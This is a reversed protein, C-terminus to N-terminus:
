FVKGRGLIPWVEEVRENRIGYYREHLNCTTCCHSPILQIKEGVRLKCTNPIKIIGHEESLGLFEAGELNKVKPMGFEKTIAKLGADVVVREPTPRSIVTTLLTLSSEFGLKELRMYHTDMFVYSGAEVETIGDYAGTINYTGTSGASVIEVGLGANKLLGVTEILLKSCRNAAVKRKEFDVLDFFPGEYGMLGRFRLGKLNLLAKAFDLTHKGPLIGCRNLGVNVEIVFDQCTGAKLSLKSTLKAIDLNDLAVMTPSHKSLGVLRLIKEPSVIENTILIDKIGANAMVEAESLKQCCIGVAGADLQKHAITPSKHTKTHPRLKTQKGKFYEAMRSINREMANLDILLSPTEVEILRTKM